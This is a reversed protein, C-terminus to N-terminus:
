SKNQTIIRLDIQPQPIPPSGGTPPSLITNAALIKM